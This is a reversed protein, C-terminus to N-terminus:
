YPSDGWNDPYRDIRREVRHALAEAAEHDADERGDIQQQLRDDAAQQRRRDQWTSTM